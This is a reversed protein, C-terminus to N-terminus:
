KCNLIFPPKTLPQWPNQRFLSIAQSSIRLWLELCNCCYLCKSWQMPNWSCHLCNLFTRSCFPQFSSYVMSWLVQLCPQLFHPFRSPAEGSITCARPYNLLQSDLLILYYAFSQLCVVFRVTRIDESLWLPGIDPRSVCCNRRRLLPRTCDSTAHLTTLMANQICSKSIRAKKSFWIYHWEFISLEHGFWCRSVLESWYSCVRPWFICAYFAWEVSVKLVTRINMRSTSDTLCRNRWWQVPRLLWLKFCSSVIVEFAAGGAFGVVNIGTTRLWQESLWMRSGLVRQATRLLREIFGLIKHLLSQEAIFCFM